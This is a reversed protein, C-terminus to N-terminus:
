FNVKHRDEYYSESELNDFNKLGFYTSLVNTTYNKKVLANNLWYLTNAPGGAQSPYYCLLPHFISIM